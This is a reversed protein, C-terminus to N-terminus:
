LISPFTLHKIIRERIKHMEASDVTISSGTLDSESRIPVLHIHVHDQVGYGAVIVGVRPTGMAIKLVRAVNKAALFLSAYEGDELDFLYPSPRKPVVLTHGPAIPSIDLFAFHDEDEWVPYSPIEGNIIRQFITLDKM